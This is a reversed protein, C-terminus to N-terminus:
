CSFIVFHFHTLDKFVKEYVGYMNTFIWQMTQLDVFDEVYIPFNIAGPSINLGYSLALIERYKFYKLWLIKGAGMYIQFFGMFTHNHHGHPGRGLNHFETDGLWANPGTPM